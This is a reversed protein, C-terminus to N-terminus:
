AFVIVVVFALLEKVLEFTIDCDLNNVFARRPIDVNSLSFHKQQWCSYRVRWLTTWIGNSKDNFPFAMTILEISEEPVTLLTSFLKVLLIEVDCVDYFLKWRNELSKVSTQLM